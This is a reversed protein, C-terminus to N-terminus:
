VTIHQDAVALIHMKDVEDSAFCQEFAPHSRSFIVEHWDSKEVTLKRSEFLGPRILAHQCYGDRDARIFDHVPDNFGQAKSTFNRRSAPSSRESDRMFGIDKRASRLLGAASRNVPQIAEGTARLSPLPLPFPLATCQRRCSAIVLFRPHCVARFQLLREERIPVDVVEALLPLHRFRNDQTFVTPRLDQPALTDLDASGSGPLKTDPLHSDPHIKVVDVHAGAQVWVSGKGPIGPM